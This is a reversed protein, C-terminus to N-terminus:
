LDHACRFGYITSREQPDTFYRFAPRLWHPNNTFWSGGKIVALNTSGYNSDTWEAVNGSMDDLGFPSRGQPYAGPRAWLAAGDVREKGDRPRDFWNAYTPYWAEGWPFRLAGPGRAAYEWENESPLRAGRWACYARAEARSILSIPKGRQGKPPTSDTWAWRSAWDVGAGPLRHGEHAALFRAYHDSTVEFRDIAFAALSVDRPSENAEGLSAGLRVQGAPIHIMGGESRGLFQTHPTPPPAWRVTSDSLVEDWAPDRLPPPAPAPVSSTEIRELGEFFPLSHEEARRMSSCDAPSLQLKEAANPDDCAGSEAFLNRLRFRPAGVPDSADTWVPAFAPEGLRVAGGDSERIFPVELVVGTARPLERQNSLFNGLSWAVLARRGSASDQLWEVRQLVHPHTGLILDAGSDVLSQALDRQEQQPEHVYDDGWHLAIVVAEAGAARAAAIDQQIREPDLMAVSWEQGPEAPIDNTSFTYALWALHIGRL